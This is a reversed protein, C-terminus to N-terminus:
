TITSRLYGWSRSLLPYSACDALASDWLALSSTFWAWVFCRLFCTGHTLGRNHGLCDPLLLLWLWIGSNGPVYPMNFPSSVRRRPFPPHIRSAFPTRVGCVGAFKTNGWIPVQTWVDFWRSGIPASALEVAHPSTCTEDLQWNCRDCVIQRHLM